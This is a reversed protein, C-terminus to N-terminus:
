TVKEITEIKDRLIGRIIGDQISGLIFHFICHRTQGIRRIRYMAQALMGPVFPLDNFVMNAAAYLDIGTSFSGITAVIVTSKGEMFEDALEQRRKMPTQGTIGTVGLKEALMLCPEVHDTYVVVQEGQDILNKVYEVTFPVKALAAKAKVNSAISTEDGSATFKEFEELLEPKDDYSIPIDIEQYPPLDLVEDTTFRIYCTSLIEKLEEENKYGEWQRITVRKGNRMIKFERLHSFHNAFHVFSPFKELFAPKDGFTPNYHCIALLSYFEHVRNQIPTGTLLLCCKMSNEFILKHSALTRKAEMSKLFQAEDWAVVDAWKFLIEAKGVYHYSIIAVDTDWLEYFEKDSEFVAVTKDPYFKKVEAKWKLRLYAPCVILITANMRHATELACLSKGLGQQLAFIAYPNKMGFEVTTNQYPKLEKIM